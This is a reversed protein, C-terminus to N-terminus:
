DVVFADRFGAAKVKSLESKDSVELQYITLNGRPVKKITGISALKPFTKNSYKSTFFQIIARNSIAKRQKM